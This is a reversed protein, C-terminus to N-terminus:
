AVSYCILSARFCIARTEDDLPVLFTTPLLDLLSQHRIEHELQEGTLNRIVELRDELTLCTDTINDM